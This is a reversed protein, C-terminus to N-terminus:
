VSMLCRAEIRAWQDADMIKKLDIKSVNRHKGVVAEVTKIIDTFAIDGKLFSEVAEENAANLVSPLTGGKEICHRALALAPFKKLDPDQFTLEKIDSFKMPKLGSSQRQPYTLAYQIPLRMDTIGLQALFSGDIFEVMSHIIAQPHVVVKIRKVDVDFLWRAEIVELGKNLLTASDVTIKKGMKWRPHNLIDDISLKNFDAKPVNLLTGGSATLILNKIERPKQQHLCQFIASQESDVPIIQAGFKKATSMIIEGAIVLAEKNAPAIRKGARCAALFPMLAASGPMGIVIIEAVKMAALAELGTEAEILKIKTSGLKSKLKLLKEKGVAVLKPAFEKIQRELLAVNNFASLGIVNFQDPFRKIVKLTNVGITGTSGLIVVNKRKM